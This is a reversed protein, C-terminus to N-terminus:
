GRSRPSNGLGGRIKTSLSDQIMSFSNNSKSGQDQFMNCNQVRNEIILNQKVDESTM